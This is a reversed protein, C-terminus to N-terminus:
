NNPPNYSDLLIRRPRKIDPEPINNNLMKVNENDINPLNNYFSVALKQIYAKFPLVKIDEYSKSNKAYKNAKVINRILSNQAVEIIKINADAVYGWVPSGCTMIPRLVATYLLLKNYMNMESNRGILPDFARLASRFKDRTEIIHQKWTLKEDLTLELYKTSQSRQLQTSYLTPPTPQTKRSLPITLGGGKPFSNFTRFSAM